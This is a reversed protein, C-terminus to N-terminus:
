EERFQTFVTPALTPAALRQSSAPTLLILASLLGLTYGAVLPTTASGPESLTRQLEACLHESVVNLNRAYFNVLMNRAYELSDASEM